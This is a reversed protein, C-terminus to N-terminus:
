FTFWEHIKPTAVRAQYCVKMCLEDAARKARADATAASRKERNGETIAASAMERVIGRGEGIMAAGAALVAVLM